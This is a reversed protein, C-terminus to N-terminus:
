TTAVGEAVPRWVVMGLKMAEATIYAEAIAGKENTTLM